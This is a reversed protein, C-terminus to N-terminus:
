IIRFKNPKKGNAESKLPINAQKVYKLLTPISMNLIKAAKDLTNKEYTNKLKEKTLDAM